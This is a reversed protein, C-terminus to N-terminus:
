RKGAATGDTGYHALSSRQHVVGFLVAVLEHVIGAAAAAPM